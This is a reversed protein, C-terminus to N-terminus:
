VYGFYKLQKEAITHFSKQEQESLTKKYMGFNTPDPPQQIKKKWALFEDPEDNSQYYNLMKHQYEINFFDCVRSLETEPDVILDEYKILLSRNSFNVLHSIINNNNGVWEDAIEEVQRSLNPSYISTSEISKLKLYSCAVDRGDRVIFTYKPNSFLMDIKELHSIYFNNKDGILHPNGGNKLAYFLYVALVVDQYTNCHQQQIFEIIEQETLGWTEFKRSQVVQSIFKKKVQNSSFDDGVFQDSLWISFGCEPPVIIEDHQNLMLRLLTTGSRPNGIIFFPTLQSLDKKMIM